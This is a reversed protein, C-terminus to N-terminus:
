PIVTVTNAISLGNYSSTIIYEGPMLNINLLAQGSSDTTRYYFVGNINFEIRQNPNPNGQGDILTAYFPDSTGYIKTFDDAFLVPLVEINNSVKCGKYEATIIYDGPQLNINLKVIGNVDTHREYFVGNINFTVVEGAGVPKGNDGIIKATYQTGNRYYKTIDKNETIRSFVTIVNSSQEGTVPNMATIIYTGPELNINLRALGYTSVQRDYFVGHINFRVSTGVKLYNGESDRFTAYYQTANRFIKSVDTGNVTTLITVKADTSVKNYTVVVPYEGSNLNLAM